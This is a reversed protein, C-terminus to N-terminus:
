ARRRGFLYGLGFLSVVAILLNKPDSLRRAVVGAAIKGVALSDSSSAPRRPPPPQPSGPRPPPSGPGPPAAAGSGAAGSGAAGSAAAGPAVAAPAAVAAPSEGSFLGALNGAFTEVLKGSVDAIVGQGMAAARGSLQLETAMTAQTGDGEPALTMYVQANATGQGRAETAKARLTATHAQEDREVIEVQGRYQMSIPGLKVKIGVKYANDDIRELVEAGPMCPAVREVDLMTEYVDDVPAEVLFSNEFRM